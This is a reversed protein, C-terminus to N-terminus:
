GCTTSASRTSGRSWRARVGRAPLRGAARRGSRPRTMGVTEEYLAVTRALTRVARRPDARHRDVGAPTHEGGDRRSGSPSPPSAARTRPTRMRAPRSPQVARDRGGRVRRGGCPGASAGPRPSGAPRGGLETRRQLPDGVTAIITDVDRALTPSSRGPRGRAPGARVVIRPRARQHGRRRRDTRRERVDRRQRRRDGRDRRGHRGGRPRREARRRRGPTVERARTVTVRWRVSGVGIASSGASTTARSPSSRASPSRPADLAASSAACTGSARRASRHRAAVGADGPRASCARRRGVIGGRWPTTASVRGTCGPGELRTPTRSAPVSCRTSTRPWLVVADGDGEARAPGCTGPRCRGGRRAVGDDRWWSRVMAAATARSARRPLSRRSSSRANSCRTRWRRARDRAIAVGASVLEDVADPSLGVETLVERTHAGLAPAPRRTPFPARDFRVPAGVVRYDGADPHHSPRSRASRRPRRARSSRRSTASRRPRCAKPRSCSAALARESRTM